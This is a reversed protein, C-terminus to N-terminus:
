LGRIPLGPVSTLGLVWKVGGCVPVSLDKTGPVDPVVARFGAGRV